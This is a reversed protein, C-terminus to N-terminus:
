RDGVRGSERRGKLRASTRMKGTQGLGWSGALVPPGTLFILDCKHEMEATIGLTTDPGQLVGPFQKNLPHSPPPARTKEPTQTRISRAPSRFM